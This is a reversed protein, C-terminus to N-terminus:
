LQTMGVCVKFGRKIFSSIFHHVLFAGNAFGTNEENSSIHVFQQHDLPKTDTCLLENLNDFM